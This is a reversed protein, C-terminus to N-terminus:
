PTSAHSSERQNTRQRIPLFGEVGPPRQAYPLAGGSIGWRFFRHFEVGIWICLAAFGLQVALRLARPDQRLRLLLRLWWRREALYTPKSKRLAPVLKKPRIQVLPSAM